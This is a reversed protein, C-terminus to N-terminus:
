NSSSRAEFEKQYSEWSCKMSCCFRYARPFEGVRKTTDKGCNICELYEVM